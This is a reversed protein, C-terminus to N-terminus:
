NLEDHTTTKTKEETLHRLQLQKLEPPHAPRPPPPGAGGGGGGGFFFVWRSRSSQPKKMATLRLYMRRKYSLLCTNSLSDSPMVTPTLISVSKDRASHSTHTRLWAVCAHATSWMSMSLVLVTNTYTRRPWIMVGAYAQGTRAMEIAGETPDCYNTEIDGVHRYWPRKQYTNFTCSGQCQKHLIKRRRWRVGPASFRSHSQRIVGDVALCTSGGAASRRRGLKHDMAHLRIEGVDICSSLSWPSTSGLSPSTRALTRPVSFKASSSASAPPSHRRVFYPFDTAREKERRERERELECAAFAAAMWHESLGQEAESSLAAAHAEEQDEYEDRPPSSNTLSIKM